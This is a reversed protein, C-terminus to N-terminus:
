TWNMHHLLSIDWLVYLVSTDCLERIRMENILSIDAMVNDDALTNEVQVAYVRESPMHQSRKAQCQTSLCRTLTNASEEGRRGQYRLIYHQRHHQHHRRLANSSCTEIKWLLLVRVTRVIALHTSAEVSWVDRNDNSSLRDKAMYKPARTSQPDRQARNAIANVKKEKGELLSEKVWTDCGGRTWGM